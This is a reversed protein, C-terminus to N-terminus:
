IYIFANNMNTILANEKDDITMDFNMLSILDRITRLKHKLTKTNEDIRLTEPIQNWVLPDRFTLVKM